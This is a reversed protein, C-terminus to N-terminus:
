PGTVSHRVLVASTDVGIM